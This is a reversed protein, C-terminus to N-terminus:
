QNEERAVPVEGGDEPPKEISYNKKEWEPLGGKLVRIDKFGFAKLADALMHSDECNGSSCYVVVPADMPIQDTLVAIRKDFDAEWVSVSRARPIHAKKFEANRRADLFPTGNEFEVKAEEPTIERVATESEVRALDGDAARDVGCGALSSSAMASVLGLFCRLRSM